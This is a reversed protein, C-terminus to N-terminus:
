GSVREGVTDVAGGEQAEPSSTTSPLVRGPVLPAPPRATQPHRARAHHSPCLPAQCPRPRAYPLCPCLCAGQPPVIPGQTSATSVCVGTGATHRGAQCSVTWQPWLFSASNGVLGLVPSVATQSPPMEPGRTFPPSTATVEGTVQALLRRRSASVPLCVHVHVARVPIVGGNGSPPTLWQPM